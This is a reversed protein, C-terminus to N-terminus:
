KQAEYFEVMRKEPIMKYFSYGHKTSTNEGPINKGYYDVYELFLLESKSIASSGLLRNDLSNDGVFSMLKLLGICVTVIMLCTIFTNKEKNGGFVIYTMSILWVFLSFLSLNAENTANWMSVLQNIDDVSPIGNKNMNIQILLDDIEKFNYYVLCRMVISYIIMIVLAEIIWKGFKYIM